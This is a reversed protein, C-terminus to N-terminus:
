IKNEERRILRLINSRHRFWILATVGLSVWAYLPPKGMLFMLLTVLLTGTLSALSVYRTVVIIVVTTVLAILFIDPAIGLLFGLGPASGKGGQFRLYPSFIHGGVAALGVLVVVVHPAGWFQAIGVPIASKLIDLGFVLIGAWPAVSRYVNTAGINGSGVKRIEVGRGASVLVGFPIGGSFYAVFILVIHFLSISFM